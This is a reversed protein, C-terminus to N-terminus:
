FVIAIKKNYSNTKTKTNVLCFRGFHLGLLILVFWFLYVSMEALRKCINARKNNNDNQEKKKRGDNLTGNNNQQNRKTKTEM